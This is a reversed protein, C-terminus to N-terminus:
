CVSIDGERHHEPVTAVGVKRIWLDLGGNSQYDCFAVGGKSQNNCLGRRRKESLCMPWAKNVSSTLLWVYKGRLAVFAM